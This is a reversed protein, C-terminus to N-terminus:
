TFSDRGFSSLSNTIVPLSSFYLHLLYCPTHTFLHTRIYTTSLSSFISTRTHILILSFFSHSVRLSDISFLIFHTFCIILSLIWIHTFNTSFIPSHMVSYSHTLLPIFPHYQPFLFSHTFHFLTLLYINFYPVFSINMSVSLLINQLHNLSFLTQTLSLSLILSHTHTLLLLSDVCYSCRTHLCSVFSPSPM